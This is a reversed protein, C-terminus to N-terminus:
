VYQNKEEIYRVKRGVLVISMVPRTNISEREREAQREEQTGRTKHTEREERERRRRREDKDEDWWGGVCVDQMANLRIDMGKCM